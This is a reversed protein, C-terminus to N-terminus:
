QRLAPDTVPALRTLRVRTVRREEVEEVQLRTETLAGPVEVVDGVEPVRGLAGFIFGGITDFDEEPLALEFRENVESIPTGGDMLVDGEPTAFFDPEAVDHEDNIEGVIEELLDEMTLLGDTGGFEDLVIALHVSQQRFQALIDGVPKTDPVFYPERMLRRVDFAEWREEPRWLLPLLDKTLLVGVINDLSGEYVPLRSHGETIVVQILEDLTIDLPVAIMDTRPTMVERAVTDSFEFVGHIMKREDEEVVGQEHSQAVLLRIEEPTHVLPHFGMPSLGLLRALGSVMRSLLWVVPRFLFTFLQLPILTLRSLVWEARQIGIFKPVQQGLVVHLCTAVFIALLVALALTGDFRVAGLAVSGTEPVIRVLLQQGIRAALFGLLLSAASSGVQAALALEEARTLAALLRAAARDGDRASQEIRSRRVAILAFETTVFFANAAILVLIFLLTTISIDPDM